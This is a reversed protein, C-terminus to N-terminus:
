LKLDRKVTDYAYTFNFNHGYTDHFCLPPTSTHSWETEVEAGSSLSHDRWEGAAKGGVSFGPLSGRSASALQARSDTQIHEPTLFDRVPIRAAIRAAQLGTATGVVIGRGKWLTQITKRPSTHPHNIRKRLSLPSTPNHVTRTKRRCLSPFPSLQALNGPVTM